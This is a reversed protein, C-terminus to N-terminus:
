FGNHMDMSPGDTALLVVGLVAAVGLATYGVIAWTRTGKRDSTYFVNGDQNDSLGLGSPSVSGAKIIKSVYFSSEYSIYEPKKNNTYLSLYSRFYLPSDRETFKAVDLHVVNGNPKDFAQKVYRGNRIEDIQRKVLNLMSSKIESRPPIFEIGKPLQIEGAFTGRLEHSVSRHVGSTEIVGQIPVTEQYYSTARDGIILASRQWDVYLPEDLKNYITIAVPADEGYFCYAISVSDNELVFDRYENLRAARDNTSLTSYYYSSCSSLSGWIMVLFIFLNLKKM